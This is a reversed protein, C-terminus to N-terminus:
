KRRDISLVERHPEIHPSVAEVRSLLDQAPAVSEEPGHRRLFGIYASICRVSARRPDVTANSAVVQLVDRAQGIRGLQELNEALELRVDSASFYDGTSEIAEASQLFAEQAGAEDGAALRTRALNRLVASRKLSDYPDDEKPAKALEALIMEAEEARGEDKLLSALLQSRRDFREAPKLDLSERLLVIASDNESRFARLEAIAAIVSARQNRCAELPSEAARSLAEEAEEYQSADRLRVGQEFEECSPSVQANATGSSVLVFALLGKAIV